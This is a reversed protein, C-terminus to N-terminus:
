ANDAVVEFWDGDKVVKYGEAVYVTSDKADTAPNYKYFKGGKVEITGFRNADRSNLTWEPNEAQFTGGNITIKGGDSVYILEYNCKSGDPGLEGFSEIAGVNTYTGGNIVIEAGNKAWVAMQYYNKGVGSVTGEGNITLTGRQACFVGDGVEDNSLSVNASLTVTATNLFYMASDLTLNSEISYSGGNAALDTANAATVTEIVGKDDILAIYKTEGAYQAPYEVKGTKNSLLMVVNNEVSYVFSYNKSMPKYNELDYDKAALFNILSQRDNIEDDAPAILTNLNRVAAEDATQNAKKTVGAFVPILVASLIAIVSVVITLEIITFGKKNNKRKFM